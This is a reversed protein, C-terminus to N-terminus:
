FARENCFYLGNLVAFYLFTSTIPAPNSGRGEYKFDVLKDMMNLFIHSTQEPGLFVFLRLICKIRVEKLILNTRLNM